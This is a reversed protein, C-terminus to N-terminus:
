VLAKKFRHAHEPRQTWHIMEGSAYKAKLTESVKRVEEVSRKQGVRSKNGFANERSKAAQEPSQKKGKKHTTNYQSLDPRSNGKNNGMCIKSWDAVRSVPTDDVDLWEPGDCNFTENLKFCDM